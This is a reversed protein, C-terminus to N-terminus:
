IEYNSEQIIFDQANNMCMYYTKHFQGALQPLELRKHTNLIVKEPIRQHENECASGMTGTFKALIEIIVKL